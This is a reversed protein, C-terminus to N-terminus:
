TQVRIERYDSMCTANRMWIQKTKIIRLASEASTYHVFRQGTPVDGRNKNNYYLGDRKSRAYPTFISELRIWRQHEDPTM